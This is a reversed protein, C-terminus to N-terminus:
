EELSPEASGMEWRDLYLPFRLCLEKVRRRAERLTAGDEPRSLVSHIIDATEEMEAEGFGRTTMAASGLRIGSAIDAGLPDFPIRNKNVTIGVSDLLEDARKGTLGAPRLDVLVVHNDTGGAVLRYGHELLRRALARANAVVQKAYLKFQPRAALGFTVAKAAMNHVHMSGQVGPFVAADIQRAFQQKCLIVGGRGGRLTKYTTFTVFDAYPVPSPHQGGAVLGAIHAIDALFYAGVEDAIARFRAFDIVRPYASAGAVVLRPRERRAIERAQDYDILESDPSVGYAAARYYRGSLSAKNGHSLHGGHALDMGLICDGPNLVTALVAWNANVGSHPQINAHDAGFLRKAREIALREVADVGHHSGHYRKGPYGEMTRNGLVSGQVELIARSPFNMAANLEITFTQRKLEEAIIHAVEPDVVALQEQM